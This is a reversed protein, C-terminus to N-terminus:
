VSSFAMEEKVSSVTKWQKTCISSAAMKQRKPSMAVHWTNTLLRTMDQAVGQVPVKAHSISYKKITQAMENKFVKRM